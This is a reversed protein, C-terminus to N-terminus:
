NKGGKLIRNVEARILEYDYGAKTLKSKRANGNGWKGAIVEKVIDSLPLLEPKEEEQIHDYKPQGYGAIGAYTRKYTKRFVGGGNDHFGKCTTNGEITTITSADIKEVIGVHCIRSTNKFFIIDGVEPSTHWQNANKFYQASTPTYFSWEKPTCLLKKAEAEGFAKVFIWNVFANCWPQGQFSKKLDDWYKTKNSYIETYGIEKAAISLVKNKM